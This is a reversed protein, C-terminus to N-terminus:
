PCTFESNPVYKPMAFDWRPFTLADDSWLTWSTGDFIEIDGSLATDYGGIVAVKDDIFTIGSGYCANNLPPMEEWHQTAFNYFYVDSLKIAGRNIAGGAVLVGDQGDNPRRYKICSHGSVEYPYPETESWINSITDLIRVKNTNGEFEEGGIVMFHTSNIDAACHDFLGFPLQWEISWQTSNAAKVEIASEWGLQNSYGGSIVM